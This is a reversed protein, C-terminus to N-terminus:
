PDSGMDFGLDLLEVGFGLPLGLIGLCGALGGWANGEVDDLTAAVALLNEVVFLIM